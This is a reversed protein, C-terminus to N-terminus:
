NDVQTPTSLCVNLKCFWYVTLLIFNPSILPQNMKNFRCFYISELTISCKGLENM